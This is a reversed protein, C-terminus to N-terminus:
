SAMLYKRLGAMTTRDIGLATGMENVSAFPGYRARYDVIERALASDIGPVVGLEEEGASNIDVKAITSKAGAGSRASRRPVKVQKGDSLKGALNPLRDLDADPLIGGAEVLADFVRLGSRLRYLGPRAVAGSVYVLVFRQSSGAAEAGPARGSKHGAAKQAQTAMLEAGSPTTGVQWLMYLAAVLALGAGAAMMGRWGAWARWGIETGERM